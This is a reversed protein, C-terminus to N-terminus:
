TAPGSPETSAYIGDSSATEPKRMGKKAARPKRAREMPYAQNKGLELWQKIEEPQFRVCKEIHYFPIKKQRVWKYVCVRSVSLMASIDNPTLFVPGKWERKENVQKESM